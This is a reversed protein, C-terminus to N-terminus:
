DEEANPEHDLPTDRLERAFMAIFDDGKSAAASVLESLPRETAYIRWDELGGGLPGLVDEGGDPRPRTRWEDRDLPNTGVFWERVTQPPKPPLGPAVKVLPREDLPVLLHLPSVSLTAAIVYLDDVTVARQGRELRSLGTRDLGLGGYRLLRERFEHQTWGRRM